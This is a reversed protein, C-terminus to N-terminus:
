PKEHSGPQKGKASTAIEDMVLECVRPVAAAVRETLEDGFETNEVQVALITIEEPCQGMLKSTAILEYLGFDHVSLPRSTKQKVEEPSFRFIAGPEDGADIADIFIAKRKGEIFNFLDACYISGEVLEVTEEVQGELRRVVHVGVGDDSKILNGIGIVVIDSMSGGPNEQPFARSVLM